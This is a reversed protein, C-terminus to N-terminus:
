YRANNLFVNGHALLLLYDLAQTINSKGSANAGFIALVPLLEIDGDQIPYGPAIEYDSKVRKGKGDQM